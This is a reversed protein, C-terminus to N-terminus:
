PAGPSVGRFLLEELAMRRVQWLAREEGNVKLRCEGEDSFTANVEFMADGKEDRVVIAHEALSFIVSLHVDKAEMLASFAGGNDALSFKYPSNDPRLANRTKLDEDVQLRLTKFIKPLACSSRETVWDFKSTGKEVKETMSGGSSPSVPSQIPRSLINAGNLSVTFIQVEDGQVRRLDRVSNTKSLGGRFSRHRLVPFTGAYGEGPARVINACPKRLPTSFHKQKVDGRMPRASRHRDLVLQSGKPRTPRSRNGNNAYRSRVLRLAPLIAFLILPLPVIPMSKPVVFLEM